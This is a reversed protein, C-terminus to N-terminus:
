DSVFILAKKCVNTSPVPELPHVPHMCLALDCREPLGDDASTLLACCAVATGALSEYSPHLKLSLPGGRLYNDSTAM